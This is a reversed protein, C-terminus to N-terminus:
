SASLTINVPIGLSEIVVEDVKDWDIKKECNKAHKCIFNRLWLDESPKEPPATFHSELYVQDGDEEIKLPQNVITVATGVEIKTFLIEIDRPFLRICGHSIESGISWPDNTGHIVIRQWKKNRSSNLSLAYNGLPNNPGPGVIEPLLPNEERISDPPIWYPNERKEAIYTQGTPTKQDAGVSVPFTLLEEELDEPIFYLRPEALNIVIGKSKTKPLLHTIPLIIKKGAYILSRNEIEPNARLLENVGLDFRRALINFTEGRKVLYREVSIEEANASSHLLQLTFFIVLFYYLM